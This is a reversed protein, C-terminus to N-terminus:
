TEKVPDYENLDLGFTWAVAERCTKVTLPVRLLYVQKTTTDRVKVVQIDEQSKGLHLRMLQSDGKKHILKGGLEEFLREHGFQNLLLSRIEANRCNLVERATLETGKLFLLYDNLKYRIQTENWKKLSKRFFNQWGGEHTGTQDKWVFRGKRTIGLSEDDQLWLADRWVRFPIKKENEIIIKILDKTKKDM